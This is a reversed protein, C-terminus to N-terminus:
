QCSLSSWIVGTSIHCNLNAKKTMIDHHNHEDIRSLWARPAEYQKERQLGQWVRDSSM